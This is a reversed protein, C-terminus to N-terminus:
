TTLLDINGTLNTGLYLYFGISVIYLFSREHFEYICDGNRIKNGSSFEIMKKDYPFKLNRLQALYIPTQVYTDM